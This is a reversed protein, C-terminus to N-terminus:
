TRLTLPEQKKKQVKAKESFEKPWTIEFDQFHTVTLLTDDITSLPQKLKLSLLNFAPGLYEQTEMNVLKEEVTLLLRIIKKILLWTFMIMLNTQFEVLPIIQVKVNSIELITKLSVEEKKWKLNQSM